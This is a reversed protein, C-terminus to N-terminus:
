LLLRNRVSTSSRKGGATAKEDHLDKEVGAGVVGPGRVWRYDWGHDWGLYGAARYSLQVSRPM